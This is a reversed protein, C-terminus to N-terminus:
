NSETKRLKIIENLEDAIIGIALGSVIGLLLGTILRILNNSEWFGFLQGLGDFGIPVLGLIMLFIFKENLEIRFFVMFGLGIVLGFWIAVCRACFPM